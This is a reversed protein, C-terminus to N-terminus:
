TYLRKRGGEMLRFIVFFFLPVAIMLMGAVMADRYVMPGPIGTSIAAQLLTRGLGGLNLTYEIIASAGFLYSVRTALSNAIFPRITRYTIGLTSQGRSRCALYYAKEQLSSLIARISRPWEGLVGEFSGLALGGILMKVLDGRISEDPIGSKYFYWGIVQALIIGIIFLPFGSALSTLNSVIEWIAGHPKRSLHYGLMLSIATSWILAILVMGGTNFLMMSFDTWSRARVGSNGVSGILSGDFISRVLTQGEPALQFEGGLQTLAMNLLVAGFSMILTAKALTLILGGVTLRRLGTAIMNM